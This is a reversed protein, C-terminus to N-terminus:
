SPAYDGSIAGVEFDCQGFAIYFYGDMGWDTGWSNAAIWYNEGEPSTGWGIIKVSHIGVFDGTTYSYIGSKYSLLDQFVNFQTMIPGASLLAAQMAIPTQVWVLNMAKYFTTCSATCVGSDDSDGSSYPVCSDEPIGTQSVLHWTYDIYGGGCGSNVSPSCSILYQPSLVVKLAEDTSICIRDALTNAVAFAWGAGCEGQNRIPGLCGPWFETTNFASPPDLYQELAHLRRVPLQSVRPLTGLKRRADRVTMDRVFDMSATWRGEQNIQAVMEETVVPMSDKLLSSSSVFLPLLLLFVKEM